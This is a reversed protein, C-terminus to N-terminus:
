SILLVIRTHCVTNTFVLRLITNELRRLVRRKFIEEPGWWTSGITSWSVPSNRACKFREIAM